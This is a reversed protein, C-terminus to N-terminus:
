WNNSFNWMDETIIYKQLPYQETLLFFQSKHYDDTYWRSLHDSIRNSKTDLYVAKIECEFKM